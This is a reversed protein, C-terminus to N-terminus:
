LLLLLLRALSSNAEGTDMKGKHKYCLRSAVSMQLVVNGLKGQLWTHDHSSSRALSVCAHATSKLPENFTASKVTASLHYNKGEGCM